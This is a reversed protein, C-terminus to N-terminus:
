NYNISVDFTGSYVGYAQGNELNLVAGVTFNDMGGEPITGTLGGGPASVIEAEFESVEMTVSNINSIDITGPLTVVYTSQPTGYVRYSAATATPNQNLLVINAPVDATRTSTAAAVHVEVDGTPITMTGFHLASLEVITLAQVIKAGATTSENVQANLQASMMLVLVFGCLFVKAKM